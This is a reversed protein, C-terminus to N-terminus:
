RPSIGLRTTAHTTTAAPMAAPTNKTCGEIAPALSPEPPYALVVSLEAAPPCIVTSAPVTWDDGPPALSPSLEDPVASDVTYSHVYATAEACICCNRPGPPAVGPSHTM